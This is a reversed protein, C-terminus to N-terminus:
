NSLIMNRELCSHTRCRKCFDYQPKIMHNQADNGIIMGSVSKIPQMLFSNNLNIGISDPKLVSFLKKQGSIHWGCYGPSYSVYRMQHNSLGSSEQEDLIQGTIIGVINEAAAAEEVSGVLVQCLKSKGKLDIIDRVTYNRTDFKGGMTYVRKLNRKEM